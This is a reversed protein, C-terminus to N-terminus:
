DAPTSAEAELEAIRKRVLVEALDPVIDWAIERILRDSIREAVRRAIREVDEDSLPEASAVRSVMSALDSISARQALQELEPAVGPDAAERPPETPPPEGALFAGEESSVLRGRVSDARPEASFISETQTPVPATPAEAVPHDLPGAPFEFVNDAPAPATEQVKRRSSMTEDLTFDLPAPPAERAPTYMAPPRYPELPAPGAEGIEEFRAEADPAALSAERMEYASLASELDGVLPAPSDELIGTGFSDPNLPVTAGGALASPTEDFRVAPYSSSPAADRSGPGGQLLAQVQALLNKSDFPKTVIANARARDARDRDFPEFTGSLLIVPVASMESHAKIYECVEYGNKGPMVVDAIVIDPRFRSLAEIAEIGNNVITLDFDGDSFTLEVVKQITLSDDAVLITKAM